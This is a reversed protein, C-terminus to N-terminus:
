QKADEIIIGIFLLAMIIGFGANGVNGTFLTVLGTMLAPILFCIKAITMEWIGKAAQTFKGHYNYVQMM